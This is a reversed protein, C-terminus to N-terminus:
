LKVKLHCLDLTGVNKDSDKCEEDGDVDKELDDNENTVKTLIHNIIDQHVETIHKKVEEILSAM